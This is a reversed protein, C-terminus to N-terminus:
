ARRPSLARLGYFGCLVAEIDAPFFPQKLFAVGQARARDALAQDQASTILVFTVRQKERRFEAITELGNFDPMNYDVLVIDFAATRALAIAEFGQAAETVDLPFRTAALTKRVISRMTSSDNVVLVRTPRRTRIAGNVLCKAEEIDTPKVALADTEFPVGSPPPALLVTFPPKPAARAAAAVRAVEDAGLADDLFVLDVARLLAGCASAGNEAEIIEIPVKAAAAANRLLDRDDKSASAAVVRLSFLEDTM